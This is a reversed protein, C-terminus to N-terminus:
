ASPCGSKSSIPSLSSRMRVRADRGGGDCPRRGRHATRPGQRRPDRRRPRSGLDLPGIGQRDRGRRARHRDVPRGLKEKLRGAVIGIVGAHWGRAAVIVVARNGKAECLAEAALQVEAEIARRDENLQDLEAAIARAEDPDRHHAPARRPGVQRRARRRQDAPRARLRSRQVLRARTLRAAEILAAMGLNRRQAM